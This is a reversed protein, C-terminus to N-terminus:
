ESSLILENIWFHKTQPNIKCLMEDNSIQSCVTYHLKPPILVYQRLNDATLSYVTNHDGQSFYYYDVPIEKKRFHAGSQYFIIKHSKYKYIYLFLTDAILCPVRNIFRYNEGNSLHIAFISDKMFATEKDKEKTHIDASYFFQKLKIKDGKHQKDTPRTLINNKFDNYNLYVGEVESNRIERSLQGKIQLFPILNLTLALIVIQPKM